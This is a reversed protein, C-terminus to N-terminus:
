FLFKIKLLAAYKLDLPTFGEYKLPKSVVHGLLLKIDHLFLNFGDIYTMM